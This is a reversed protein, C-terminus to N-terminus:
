SGSQSLLSSANRKTFGDLARLEKVSAQVEDTVCDRGNAKSTYLAKDARDIADHLNGHPDLAAVGFSVTCSQTTGGMVFEQRGCQRRLKEAVENAAALDCDSMVLVFEEGGMRAATNALGAADNFMQGFRRIVEDGTAHGYQDNVKKFHDIDGIIVSMPKSGRSCFDQAYRTREEIGRRNLCGTLPDTQSVRQLDSMIKLAFSALLSTAIMLASIAATFHLAIHFPSNLYTALDMQTGALWFVLAPRVFFQLTCILFAFAIVRDLAGRKLAFVAPLSVAFVMGLMVNVWVTRRFTDPDVLIFYSLGALHIFVLTGLTKSPIPKRSRMWCGVVSLSIATLFFINTVYSATLDPVYDRALDFLFAFANTVYAFAFILASRLKRSATWIGVFGMAFMLYILPTLLQFISQGQM